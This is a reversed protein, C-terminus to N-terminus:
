GRIWASGGYAIWPYRRAHRRRESPRAWRRACTASTGAGASTCCTAASSGTCARATGTSGCCCARSPRRLAYPLPSHVTLARELLEASSGALRLRLAPALNAPFWSALLTGLSAIASNPIAFDLRREVAALLAAVYGGLSLGTVDVRPAGTRELHDLLVRFDHVAHIIAENVGAMGHAFLELGNV